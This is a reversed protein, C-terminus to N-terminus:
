NYLDVIINRDGEEELKGALQGVVHLRTHLPAPAFLNCDYWWKLTNVLSSRTQLTGILPMRHALCTSSRPREQAEAGADRCHDNQRCDRGPHNDAREYAAHQDLGELDMLVPLDTLPCSEKVLCRWTINLAQIINFHNGAWEMSSM